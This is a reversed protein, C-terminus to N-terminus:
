QQQCWATLLHNIIKLRIFVTKSLGVDQHEFDSVDDSSNTIIFSTKLPPEEGLVLDTYLSAAIASHMTQMHLNAEERRLHM